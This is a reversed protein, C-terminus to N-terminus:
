ASALAARVLSDYTEDTRSAAVGLAAVFAALEAQVAVGSVGDGVIRELELFTGLGAVDDVCLVGDPLDATRRVKAIRVTPRFGMALIAAHMQEREAVITEYEDCALANDAPRKLTFTHRGGVTRLRVFPVGLKSDGYSWSQPAYAQDDQVVPPGPEIGRATLAVLLAERDQVRYKVEVERM